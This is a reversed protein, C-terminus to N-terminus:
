RAPLSQSVSHREDIGMKRDNWGSHPSARHHFGVPRAELGHCKSSAVGRPSSHLGPWLFTSGLHWTYTMTVWVCWATFSGQAISRVFGPARVFLTAWRFRM